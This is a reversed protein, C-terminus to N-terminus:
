RCERIDTPPQYNVPDSVLRDWESQPFNESLVFYGHLNDLRLGLQQHWLVYNRVTKSGDLEYLSAHAGRYFRHLWRFGNLCVAHGGLQRYTEHICLEEGGFGSAERHFGPWNERWVAFCGLGQGPIKLTEHAAASDTWPRCGIERLAAAHQEYPTKISYPAAARLRMEGRVKWFCTSGDPAAAPCVVNSNADLWATGWVGWMRNRWIPLFHTSSTTQDDRLMPGSLINKRHEAPEAFYDLIYDVANPALLVHCDMCIVIDATANDIVANRTPSTGSPPAKIIRLEPIKSQLALLQEHEEPETEWSSDVVIIEDFHDLMRAHQISFYCGNWDGYNAMGLCISMM